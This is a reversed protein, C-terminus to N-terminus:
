ATAAPPNNILDACAQECRRCAEACIRCHAHDEAHQECQEACRRCSEACAALITAWWTPRTGTQRALLRAALDCIDACDLTTRVCEALERTTEEGLCSDACVTCAATCALCEDICRALPENPTAGPDTGLIARVAAATSSM